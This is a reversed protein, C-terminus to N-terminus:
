NFQEVQPCVCFGQLYNGSAAQPLLKAMHIFNCANSNCARNSTIGFLEICKDCLAKVYIIEGSTDTKIIDRREEPTLCDFGFRVEDIKDVEIIDIDAVCCDCTYYLKM